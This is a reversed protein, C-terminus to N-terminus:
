QAFLQAVTHNNEIHKILYIIEDGVKYVEFFVYWNTQKNKKFLAYKLEEGYRKFIDPAPKMLKLPLNAKIDDILDDVYKIAFEEYGFYDKEYLISVLEELYDIVEAKALVKM